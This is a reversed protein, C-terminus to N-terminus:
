TTGEEPRRRYSLWEDGYYDFSAYFLRTFIGNKDRVKDIVVYSSLGDNFLCKIFVPEGDMGRLEELTLPANPPPVITPQDFYTKRQERDEMADEIQQLKKLAQAIPWSQLNSAVFDRDYNFGRQTMREM